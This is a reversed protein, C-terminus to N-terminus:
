NDRFKLWISFTPIEIQWVIHWCSAPDNNKVITSRQFNLMVIEFTSLQVSLKPVSPVRPVAPVSPVRPVTPVAQCTDWDCVVDLFPM